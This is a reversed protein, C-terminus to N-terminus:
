HATRRQLVGEAEKIDATFVFAKPDIQMIINRLKRVELRTIVTFIIECDHSVEFSDKM